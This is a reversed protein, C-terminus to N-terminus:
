DNPTDGAGPKDHMAPLDPWIERVLILVLDDGIFSALLGLCSALLAAVGDHAQEPAVTRLAEGLAKRCADANTGVQVPELFPFEGRVLHVARTFLALSGTVGVLRALQSLLQSFVRETARHLVDADPSDGGERALIVLALQRYEPGTLEM